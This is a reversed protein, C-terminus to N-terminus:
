PRCRDSGEDLTRADEGGVLRWRYAGPALELVLVAPVGTVRAESGALLRGFGYADAGGTGVVIERVGGPDPRGDTALRAFREYSHEHGNLVLDVGAAAVAEFFPAMDRDSGHRSGSSFRPRHWIAVSCAAPHDALEAALWRGQASTPGCGGVKDCESDLVIVRWSGADYAYWTEVPAGAAEGFYGRYGAADATGWDHNGTAPSTRSRLAGWAPAYCEEFNEATGSPYANDGTTFVTASPPAVTAALHGTLEARGGDDCAAIDGAGVLVAAAAEDIPVATTPAPSATGAAGSGGGGCAAVFGAICLLAAAGGPHL